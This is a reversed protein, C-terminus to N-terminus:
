SVVLLSLQSVFTGNESSNSLALYYTAALSASSLTDTYYLFYYLASLPYLYLVASVLWEDGGGPCM